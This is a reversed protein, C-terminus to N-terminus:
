MRRLYTESSLAIFPNQLHEDISIFGCKNAERTFAFDGSDIASLDDENIPYRKNGDQFGDNDIVCHWIPSSQFAGRQATMKRTFYLVYTKEHTYPLFSFAPLSVVAELDVNSLFTRRYQKLSSNEVLGDPVIVAARGGPKLSKIIKELFLYEFRRVRAFEFQQIDADGSYSGYPINAVAYDYQDSGLTVLSDETWIINAGGDGAMLMNTRAYPISYTRNNDLGSFTSSKLNSLVADDFAGSDRYQNQLYL